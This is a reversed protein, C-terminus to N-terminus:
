RIAIMIQESSTEYQGYKVSHFYKDFIQRYIEAEEKDVHGLLMVVKSNVEAENYITELESCTVENVTIPRKEFIIKARPSLKDKLGGYLVHYKFSEIEGLSIYWYNIDKLEHDKIMSSIVRTTHQAGGMRFTLKYSLYHFGYILAIIVVIVIFSVRNYKKFLNSGKPPMTQVQSTILFGIGIIFLHISPQLYISFRSAISFPHLGPIALLCSILITFIPYLLIGCHLTLDGKLNILGVNRVFYYARIIGIYTLIAVLIIVIFYYITENIGSGGALATPILMIQKIFYKIFNESVTYNHFDPSVSNLSANTGLYPKMRFFIVFISLSIISSIGLLILNNKFYLYKRNLIIILYLVTYMSISSIVFSYRSSLGAVMILTLIVWDFKSPSRLENLKVIIKLAFFIMLYTLCIEMGYARIELSHLVMRESALPLFGLCVSLLLPFGLLLAIKIFTVISIMFFILPLLRLWRENFSVLEWVHLLLFSGPPDTTRKVGQEIADLWSGSAADIPTTSDHGKALFIYLSEDKGLIGSSSNNLFNVAISTLLIFGMIAALSKNVISNPIILKNIEFIKAALTPIPLSM